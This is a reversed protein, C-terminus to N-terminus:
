WDIQGRLGFANTSFSPRVVGSKTLKVREPSDSVRIHAYNVLFRVHSIPIWTLGLNISYQGGGNVAASQDSLDIWDVGANLQLAGYGGKDLPHLPKTRDWAGKSAKYGKKEGTLFWGLTAYGGQFDASDAGGPMAGNVFNTMQRGYEGEFSLPGHQAALEAGLFVSSEVPMKGTSVFRTNTTHLFPRQRLRSPAAGQDRYEVSGGLHLFGEDLPMTYHARSALVYGSKEDSGDLGGNSFVGSKWHWNKGHFNVTVGLERAFGFADTFAAREMFTIFRSSTQENMSVGTKQNGITIGVGDFGKYELYADTVDVENNAFDAEIKYKWDTIEGEVGLRARRFETTTGLGRDPSFDAPSTGSGITDPDGVIGLDTQVRGRLKFAKFGKGTFRPAGKAEVKLDPSEKAEASAVKKELAQLQAKLTEIQQMLERASQAAAPTAALGAALAGAALALRSSSLHRAM